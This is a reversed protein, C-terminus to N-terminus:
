RHPPSWLGDPAQSQVPRRKWVTRVMRLVNLGTFPPIYYDLLLVDPEFKRIEEIADRRGACRPSPVKVETRRDSTFSERLLNSGDCVAACGTDWCQRFAGYVVRGDALFNKINYSDEFAQTM